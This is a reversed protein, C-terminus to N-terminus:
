QTMTGILSFSAWHAPDPYKERTELSALRLAEAPFFPVGQHIWHMFRSMLYATADDDVSWLSQIVYKTGSIVFSRAMSGAVGAEMSKGLGSQCASLIVMEPARYKDILRMDMVEKSTLYPNEGSLVLFNNQMPNEVDSMGHTAFYVLDCGSMLAMVSDKRAQKGTLIRKEKKFYPLSLKIEKEAGPLDPFHYNESVPYTPNNILLAHNTTWFATDSLKAGNGTFRRMENAFAFDLLTPAISFSCHHILEQKNAYPRLLQFPFVGINLSPIVILHQYKETFTDPLFLRTFTDIYQDYSLTPNTISHSVSAGRKVASRKAVMDYLNLTSYFNETLNQLANRTIPFHKIERCRGPEFFLRHLTDEHFFFLVVALNKQGRYYEGMKRSLDEVTNLNIQRFQSLNKSVELPKLGRATALEEYQNQYAKYLYDINQGSLPTLLALISLGTFAIRKLM